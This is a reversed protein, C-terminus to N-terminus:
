AFVRLAHHLMLSVNNGCLECYNTCTVDYFHTNTNTHTFPHYYDIYHIYWTNLFPSLLTGVATFTAMVMLAFHLLLKPSGASCSYVVQMCTGSGWEEMAAKVCVEQLVRM